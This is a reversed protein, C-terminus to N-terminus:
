TEEPTSSVFVDQRELAPLRRKLKEFTMSRADAIAEDIEQPFAEYYHLAAQVKWVPLDFHAATKETVMDSDQATLIVKWLRIGGTLCAQREGQFARFEIEAFQSRRRAEEFLSASMESVSRGARRAADKLWEATEDPLRMTIAQSM